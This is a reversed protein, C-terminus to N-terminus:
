LELVRELSEFVADVSADAPVSRLKGKDRYYDAVPRTLDHYTALRSLIAAENDDARTILPSQGCADCTNETKPPATTVHYIAACGSCSRRGLIRDVVVGDDIKMDVVRDVSQGTHGLLRDLEVAQAVTRPFGDLIAGSACDTQALRWGILEVVLDDPVLDGVDMFGAARLGLKSGDRRASRLLDGTSVQPVAISKSLRQAQTGKGVGPPGMLVFMM